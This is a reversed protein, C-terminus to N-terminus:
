EATAEAEAPAEEGGEEDAFEVIKAKGGRPPRIVLITRDPSMLPTINQLKLTRVKLNHGIQLKSIDVVLESPLDGPLASVSLKRLSQYLRGGEIVGPSTGKIRIPITVTVPKDQKIAYFDAHVPADTVPDFQTVKLIAEVSKGGEFTLKIFQLSKKTLFKELAIRPVSFHLNGEVGPGYVVAPVLDEKRINGLRKPDINREVATIEITKPKEM